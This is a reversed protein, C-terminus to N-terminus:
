SQPPPDVPGVDEERWARMIAECRRCCGCFWHRSCGFSFRGCGWCWISPTLVHHERVGAVAQGRSQRYTRSNGLM